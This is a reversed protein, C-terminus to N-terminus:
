LVTYGLVAKAFLSRSCRVRFAEKLASTAGFCARVAEKLVGVVGSCALGAMKIASAAGLCARDAKELAIAAGPAPWLPWRSRVLPASAPEFLGKSRVPLVRAPRLVGNQAGLPGLAANERTKPGCCRFSTFSTFARIRGRLQRVRGLVNTYIDYTCM